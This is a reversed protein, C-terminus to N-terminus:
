DRDNLEDYLKNALWEHVTENLHTCECRNDEIFQKGKESNIVMKMNPYLLQDEYIKTNKRFVQEIHEILKQDLMKTKEDWCFWYFPINALRCLRQLVRITYLDELLQQVSLFRTLTMTKQMEKLTDLEVNIPQYGTQRKTNAIRENLYNVDKDKGRVFDTYMNSWFTSYWFESGGALEPNNPETYFEDVFIDRGFYYSHDALRTEVIIKTCHSSRSLELFDLVQQQIRLNCNGPIAFNMIPLGFKKGLINAYVKDEDIAWYDGRKCQGYTHSTGFFAIFPEDPLCLNLEELSVDNVNPKPKTRL